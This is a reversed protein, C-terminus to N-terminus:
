YEFKRLLEKVEADPYITLHAELRNVLLKKM